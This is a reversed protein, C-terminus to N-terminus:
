RISTSQLPYHCAIQRDQGKDLLIPESESCLPMASPCHTHFRCGSPPNIPSPLEANKLRVKKVSLDSAQGPIANILARTYPHAPIQFLEETRAIECLKGLYM